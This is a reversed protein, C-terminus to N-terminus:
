VIRVNLVRAAKGRSRCHQSIRYASSIADDEARRLIVERKRPAELIRDVPDRAHRVLRKCSLWDGDLRGRGPRKTTSANLIVQTSHHHEEVREGEVLWLDKYPVARRLEILLGSFQLVLRRAIQYLLLQFRELFENGPM